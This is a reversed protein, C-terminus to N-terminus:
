ARNLTTSVISRLEAFLTRRLASLVASYAILGVVGELAILLLAAPNGHAAPDLWLRDIPLLVAVMILAALAPAWLHRAIQAWGIELVPRVLSLAYVAGIAAGISVGLAVGILDFSLLAVMAAAGAIGTLAHVRVLLKPKGDAKLIESVISILSAAVMYVSLASAANGADRWVSGFLTVALSPGLPILLLGLPFAIVALWRLSNTFAERFRERDDRIRAFAPFLVYAGAALIMAFPTSAIRDAYRFQGLPGAGVFRGLLVVPVQEGLRLVAHSAVVHRGYGVLERWMSLSVQKFRPRWRVLSWSLIVDSVAGSYYGLVLGWPGMGNSTAIVAVVGFAVVRVPEVVMRRLFSFRRQLLAEPVVRLNYVLMLGSMAAALTGVRHSDFLSGILPSVALALLSFVAGSVVTAVAATSAAEDIRDHRHIIAPLMGSESLLWGASIAISAAAFQGFDTPTALRALALYFGLTLAQALGFGIAALGAGRVVTGTLEEKSGPDLLHPQLPDESV